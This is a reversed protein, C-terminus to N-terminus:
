TPLHTWPMCALMQRYATRNCHLAMGTFGRQTVRAPLGDPRLGTHIVWSREATGPRCEWSDGQYIKTRLLVVGFLCGFSPVGNRGIRTRHLEKGSHSGM